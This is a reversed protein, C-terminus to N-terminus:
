LEDMEREPWYPGTILITKEAKDINFELEMEEPAQEHINLCANYHILNFNVKVKGQTLHKDLHLEKFKVNEVVAGEKRFYYSLFIGFDKNDQNIIERVLAEKSLDKNSEKIHFIWSEQM